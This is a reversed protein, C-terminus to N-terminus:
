GLCHGVPLSLVGRLCGSGIRDLSDVPVSLEMEPVRSLLPSRRKHDALSSLLATAWAKAGGCDGASGARM